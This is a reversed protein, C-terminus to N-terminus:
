SQGCAASMAGEKGDGFAMRNQYAPKGARLGRRIISAMRKKPNKSPSLFILFRQEGLEDAVEPNARVFQAFREIDTAVKDARQEPSLETPNTM